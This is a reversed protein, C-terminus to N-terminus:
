ATFCFAVFELSERGILQSPPSSSWVDGGGSFAFALHGMSIMCSSSMVGTGRRKSCSTCFLMLYQCDGVAHMDCSAGVAINLSWNMGFIYCILLCVSRSPRSCTALPTTCGTVFLVILFICFSILSGMM